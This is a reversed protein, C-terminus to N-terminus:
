DLLAAMIRESPILAVDVAYPNEAPIHLLMKGALCMLIRLLQFFRNPACAQFQILLSLIALPCFHTKGAFFSGSPIAFLMGLAASSRGNDLCSDAM